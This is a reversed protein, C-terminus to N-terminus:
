NKKNSCLYCGSTGFCQVLEFFLPPITASKGPRRRPLHRTQAPTVPPTTSPARTPAPTVPSTTATASLHRAILMNACSVSILIAGTLQALANDILIKLAVSGPRTVARIPWLGGGDAGFGRRLRGFGREMPRTVARVPWLVGGDAGVGRGLRGFGLGRPWSM